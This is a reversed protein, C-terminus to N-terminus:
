STQFLKCVQVIKDIYKREKEDIPKYLLNWSSKWDCFLFYFLNVVKYGAGFTFQRQDAFGPTAAALFYLNSKEFLSVFLLIAELNAEM